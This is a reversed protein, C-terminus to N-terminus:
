PNKWLLIPGNVAACGKKREAFVRLFEEAMEETDVGAFEGSADAEKALEDLRKSYEKVYEPYADMLRKARRGTGDGVLKGLEEIFEEYTM